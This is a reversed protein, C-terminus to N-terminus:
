ARPAGQPGGRRAHGTARRAGARSRGPGQAKHAALETELRAAAQAQADRIGQEAAERQHREFTRQLREEELRRREEELQAQVRETEKRAAAAKAELDERIKRGEESVSTRFIGKKEALAHDGAALAKAEAIAEDRMRLGESAGRAVAADAQVEALSKRALVESATQELTRERDAQALGRIRVADDEALATTLAAQAQAVDIAHEAAAKRDVQSHEASSGIAGRLLGFKQAVQRHYDDQLQSYRAYSKQGKPSPLAAAAQNRVACWGLKGERTIPVALVHIHPSTEDRHLAAAAIVSRPGLMKRAWALSQLAWEHERERSWEDDSGYAPPGALVLEVVGKPRRGRKGELAAFAADLAEAAEERNDELVVTPEDLSLATEPRAHGVIHAALARDIGKRPEIRLVQAGGSPSGGGRRASGALAGSSSRLSRGLGRARARTAAADERSMQAGVKRAAAASASSDSREDRARARDQARAQRRDGARSPDKPPATAMAGSYRSRPRGCAVPPSRRM